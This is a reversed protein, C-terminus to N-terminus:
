IVFHMMDIDLETLLVNRRWCIEIDWLDDDPLGYMLLNTRFM